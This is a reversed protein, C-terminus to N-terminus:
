TLALTIELQTLHVRCVNELGKRYNLFISLPFTHNKYQITFRTEVHSCDDVTKPIYPTTRLTATLHENIQFTSM